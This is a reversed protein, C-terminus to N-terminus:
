WSCQLELAKGTRRVMLQIILSVVLKIAEALVVATSSAAQPAETVGEDKGADPTLKFSYRMFLAEASNQFVLTLLVAM